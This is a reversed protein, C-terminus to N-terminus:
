RDRMMWEVSSDVLEQMSDVTARLAPLMEEGLARICEELAEQFEVYAWIYKAPHKYRDYLLWVMLTVIILAAVLTNVFAM